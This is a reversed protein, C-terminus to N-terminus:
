DALAVASWHCLQGEYVLATGEAVDSATTLRMGLGVQRSAPRAGQALEDLFKRAEDCSKPRGDGGRRIADFAYGQILREMQRRFMDSRGFLDAGVIGGGMQVVVGVTQAPLEFRRTYEALDEQLKEFGDTLSSTRSEASVEDLCMAVEQWVALQADRHDAREGRLRYRRPRHYSRRVSLPATTGTRFRRGRYAWRGQEVCSVPLEVAEESAVVVSWQVVRNQKAGILIAGEPILVPLDSANRVRLRGVSGAEHVEEVIVGGSEIATDALALPIPPPPSPQVVPFLTLAGYRVPESVRLRSSWDRVVAAALSADHQGVHGAQLSTESM